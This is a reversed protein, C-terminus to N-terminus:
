GHRTRAASVTKAMLSVGTGPETPTVLGSIELVPHRTSEAAFRQYADGFLECELIGSRDVLSLFKM